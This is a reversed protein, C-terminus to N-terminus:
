QSTRIVVKKLLPGLHPVPDFLPLPYEYLPLYRLLSLTQVYMNRHPPNVVKSLLLVFQLV